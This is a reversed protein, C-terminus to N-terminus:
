NNFLYITHTHSPSLTHSHTLSHILSHILSVQLLPLKRIAEATKGKSINELVKGLFIITILIGCEVFLLEGTYDKQTMSIIISILSYTFASTTSLVVLVDVNLRKQKLANWAGV